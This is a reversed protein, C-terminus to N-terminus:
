GAKWRYILYGNLMGIAGAFALSAIVLSGKKKRQANKASRCDIAAFLLSVFFILGGVAMHWRAVLVVMADPWLQFIWDYVATM